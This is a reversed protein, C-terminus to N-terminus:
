FKGFLVHIQWHMEQMHNMVFLLLHYKAKKAKELLTVASLLKWYFLSKRVGRERM